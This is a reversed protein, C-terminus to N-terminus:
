FFADSLSSTNITKKSKSSLIVVLAGLFEVFAHTGKNKLCNKAVRLKSDIASKAAPKFEQDLGRDFVAVIGEVSNAICLLQNTKATAVGKRMALKAIVYESVFAIDKFIKMKEGLNDHVGYAYLLIFFLDQCEDLTATKLKDKVSGYRSLYDTVAFLSPLTRLSFSALFQSSPM